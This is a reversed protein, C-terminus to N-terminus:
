GNTDLVGAAMVAIGAWPIRVGAIICNLCPAEALEGHLEHVVVGSWARGM